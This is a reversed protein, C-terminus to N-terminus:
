NVRWTKIITGESKSGGRTTQGEAHQPDPLGAAARPSPTRWTM